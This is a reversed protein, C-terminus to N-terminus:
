PVSFLSRSLKNSQSPDLTSENEGSFAWPIIMPTIEAELTQFGDGSVTMERGLNTLRTMGGRKPPECVSLTLKSTMLGIAGIDGFETRRLDM